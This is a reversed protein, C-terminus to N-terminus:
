FLPERRRATGSLQRSFLHHDRDRVGVVIVAVIFSRIKDYWM